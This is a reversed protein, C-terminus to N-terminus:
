CFSVIVIAPFQSFLNKKHFCKYKIRGESKCFGERTKSVKSFILFCKKKKTGDLINQEFFIHVLEYFFDRRISLPASHTFTFTSKLPNFQWAAYTGCLWGNSILMM